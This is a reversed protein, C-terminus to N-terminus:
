KHLNKVHDHVTHSSRGLKDAIVRVSHGEILQDLIEQERDTLWAKPNSVRSLAIQSRHSLIPFVGALTTILEPEPTEPSAADFAICALLYLGPKSANIPILMLLPRVLSQTALIRGLPLTNWQPSLKRLSAVMGRDWADSPIEIGLKILRELKDHLYLTRAQE